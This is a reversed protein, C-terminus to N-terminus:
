RRLEVERGHELALAQAGLLLGVDLPRQRQEPVQGLLRGPVDLALDDLGREDGEAHGHVADDLPREQLLPREVDV